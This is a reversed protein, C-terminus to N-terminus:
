LHCVLTSMLEVFVEVLLEERLEKVEERFAKWCVEVLERGVVQVM